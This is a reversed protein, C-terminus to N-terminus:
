KASRSAFEKCTEEIEEVSKPYRDINLVRVAAESIGPIRPASHDVGGPIVVCMLQAGKDFNFSYWATGGGGGSIEFSYPLTITPREPGYLTKEVELTVVGREVNRTSSPDPKRESVKCVYVHAGYLDLLDRINETNLALVSPGNDGSEYGIKQRPKNDRSSAYANPIPSTCGAYFAAIGFLSATVIQCIKMPAGEYGDGGYQIPEIM